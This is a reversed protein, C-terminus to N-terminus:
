SQLQAIKLEGDVQQTCTKNRDTILDWFYTNKWSLEAGNKVCILVLFKSRLIMAAEDIAILSLRSFHFPDLSVKEWVPSMSFIDFWVWM